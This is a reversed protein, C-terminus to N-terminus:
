NGKAYSILQMTFTDSLDRNRPTRRLFILAYFKEYWNSGALIQQFAYDWKQWARTRSFEMKVIGLFPVDPTRWIDLGEIYLPDWAFTPARFHYCDFSDEASSIREQEPLVSLRSFDIRGKTFNSESYVTNSLIDPQDSLASPDIEFSVGDSFSFSLKKASKFLSFLWEHFYKEPNAAFVKSSLPSVLAAISMEAKNQHIIEFNVFFYTKNKVIEKATVQLRYLNNQGKDDYGIIKYEVFQGVQWPMLSFEGEPIIDACYGSSCYAYTMGIGYLLLVILLGKSKIM